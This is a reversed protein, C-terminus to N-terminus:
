NIRYIDWAVSIEIVEGVRKGDELKMSVKQTSPPPTLTVDHDSITNTMTEDTTAIGEMFFILAVACSPKLGTSM